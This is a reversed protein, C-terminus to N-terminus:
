RSETRPGGAATRGVSATTAATSEAGRAGCPAASEAIGLANEILRGGFPTLISEPHFQVGMLPFRRHRVAMVVEGAAAIPILPELVSMAALSHYRGAMFPTPIGDFLADGEHHVRSARGHVIEPAADVRGGFAEVLAQHGLCVGLLPVTGEARRALELCCGAEAPRGPGPSLVILRAGDFARARELVHSASATNRWVEVSCGRRAFEDVLNFTFSDFNDVVVVGARATV